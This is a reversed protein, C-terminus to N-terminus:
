DKIIGLYLENRHIMIAAVMGVERLSGKLCPEQSRLSVQM